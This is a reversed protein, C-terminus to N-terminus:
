TAEATRPPASGGGPPTGRGAPSHALADRPIRKCVSTGESGASTLASIYNSKNARKSIQM